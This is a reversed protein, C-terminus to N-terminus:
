EHDLTEDRAEQKPDDFASQISPPLEDSPIEALSSRKLCISVVVVTVVFGLLLLGGIVGLVICISM